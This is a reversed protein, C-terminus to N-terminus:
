PDRLKAVTWIEQGRGAKRDVPVQGVIDAKFQSAWQEPTLDFLAMVGEPSIVVYHLGTKKLDALSDNHLIVVLRRKGYPKWLSALPDDGASVIGIIKEDSPILARVSALVDSRGAYVSYVREARTVLASNPRLERLKRMTHLAPWLPRAPSLIVAMAATLCSIVALWRWWRRSVVINQWSCRLVLPLCLCYYPSVIRSAASLGSKTMYALLAVFPLLMLLLLFKSTNRPTEAHSRLRVRYIAGFIISSVLLTMVGLGLGSGEEMPLEGMGFSGREFYTSIHNLWHPSLTDFHDTWYRAWPFFPPAFNQLLLQVTNGIIGYLPNSMVFVKQELPAGTWDGCRAINIIATPLFSVLAGLAAVSISLIAKSWLLRISPLLAVTIPLLIPLNSGKSGTMVAAALIALWAYYVSGNRKARLAFVMAALAYVSAFADNGISAAQLVFCYGTPALWMWNWAVSRRVGVACLWQFVLGPLLLFSVFNILFLPRDTRFFLLIPSMLWEFGAPRSNLRQDHVHIWSWHGDTLWQLVRPVRYSLGDYNTPGYLIGGLFSLTALLLFLMPLLRCFRQPRLKTIGLRAVTSKKVVCYGASVAFLFAILYGTRNLQHIFSLLWGAASFFVSIFIWIEAMELRLVRFSSGASRSFNIGPVAPFNNHASRTM